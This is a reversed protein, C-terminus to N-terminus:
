PGKRYPCTIEKGIVNATQSLIASARKVAEKSVPGIIAWDRLTRNQLDVSHDDLISSYRPIM